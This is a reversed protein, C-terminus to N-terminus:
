KTLPKIRYYMLIYERVVLEWSFNDKVFQRTRDAWKVRVNDDMFKTIERCFGLADQSSVLVGNLGHKVASPIGELNSAVVPVACAGAELAVLGFGESDGSIKINPMIMVDAAALYRAMEEDPANTILYVRAGLEPNNALWRSIKKKEPGNGIILYLTNQPLTAFVNELFWVVGKRPVLRGVTIITFWDSLDFGLEKLETRAKLRAPWGSTEVGNPIIACKSPDVGNQIALEKTYDSVTVLLDLRKLFSAFFLRYFINQYTLELGHVTALVPRRALVKLFWGLPALVGDGLHIVDYSRRSFLAKCFAYPLFWVLHIRASYKLAITKTNLPLHNILAKIM